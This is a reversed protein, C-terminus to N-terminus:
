VLHLILRPVAFGLALWAFALRGQGHSQVAEHQGEQFCEFCVPDGRHSLYSDIKSIQARCATCNTM